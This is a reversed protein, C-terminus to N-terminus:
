KQGEKKCSFKATRSTGCLRQGHTDFSEIMWHLACLFFSIINKLETRAFYFCGYFGRKSYTGVRRHETKVGVRGVCVGWQGIGMGDKKANGGASGRRVEYIVGEGSCRRSYRQKFADVFMFWVFLWCSPIRSGMLSIIERLSSFILYRLLLEPPQSIQACHSISMTRLSFFISTVRDGGAYRPVLFKASRENMGSLDFSRAKM